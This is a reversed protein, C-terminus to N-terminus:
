EGQSSYRRSVKRNRRTSHPAAACIMLVHGLGAGVLRHRLRGAVHVDHGDDDREDADQGRDHHQPVGRHRPEVDRHQDPRVQDAREAHGDPVVPHQGVARHLRRLPDAVREDDGARGRDFAGRQDPGRVVALVVRVGVDLAVRVRRVDAAALAQLAEPVGVDAPEPRGLDLAAPRALVRRVQQAVLAQHPDRLPERPDRQGAQDDGEEGTPRVVAAERAAQLGEDPGAQHADEEDMVHGPRDVRDAVERAVPPEVDVVVRAVVRQQRDQREALRPVVVM